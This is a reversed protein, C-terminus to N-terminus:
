HCVYGGKKRIVLNLFHDVKVFLIWVCPAQDLTRFCLCWSTYFEFIEKVQRSHQVFSFTSWM